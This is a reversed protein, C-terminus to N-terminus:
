GAEGAYDATNCPRPWRAFECCRVDGVAGGDDGGVHGIRDVPHKGREQAREGRALFGHLALGPRRLESGLGLQGGLVQAVEKPLAIAAEVDQWRPELVGQDLLHAKGLDEPFLAFLVHLLVVLSEKGLLNVFQQGVIFDLRHFLFAAFDQDFALGKLQPVHLDLAGLLLALAADEPAGRLLHPQM